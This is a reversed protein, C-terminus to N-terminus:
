RRSGGLNCRAIVSITAGLLSLEKVWKIGFPTDQRDKWDGLWLGKSKGRNLKARSAREYQAYIDFTAQMPPLRLLHITPIGLASLCGVEVRYLFVRLILRPPSAAHWCKLASSMCFLRFLVAKVFVSFAQFFVFDVWKYCRCVRCKYLVLIDM